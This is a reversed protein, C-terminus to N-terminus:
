RASSTFTLGARCQCFLLESRAMDLCIQLLTRPVEVQSLSSRLSIIYMHFGLLSISDLLHIIFIILDCRSIMDTDVATDIRGRPDLCIKGM